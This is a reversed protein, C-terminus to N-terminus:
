KTVQSWIQGKKNPDVGKHEFLQSVTVFVYGEEKLKPIIIDLSDPTNPAYPADHLLIIIGDKAKAIIDEAIQEPTAAGENSAGVGAIFPMEIAKHVKDNVNIYPPRFFKPTVGVMDFIIKNTDDVQKKMEETTLKTFYPHDWSHNGIESGLDLIRQMNRKTSTNVKRGELFFTAVVDYKELKNLIVNTVTLNPGDDFTLAIVKADTPIPTPEPKQTPVVTPTAVPAETPALTPKKTPIATPKASTVTVKMTGVRSEKKKYISNVTITATGPKIGKVVGAKTVTAIKPNSSKYTYTAGKIMGSIVIKSTKNVTLNIKTTKLKTAASASEAVGTAVLLSILVLSIFVVHLRKLHKM